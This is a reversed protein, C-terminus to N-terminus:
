SIVQQICTRVKCDDQTTTYHIQADKLAEPDLLNEMSLDQDFHFVASTMYAYGRAKWSAAQAAAAEVETILLRNEPFNSLGLVTQNSTTATPVEVSAVADLVYGLDTSFYDNTDGQLTGGLQVIGFEDENQRMLELLEEDFFVLNGSNGTLKVNTVNQGMEYAFAATRAVADLEISCLVMRIPYTKPFTLKKESVNAAPNWDNMEYSKLYGAPGGYDRLFKERITIYSESADFGTTAEPDSYTINCEVLDWKSLDLAYEPDWLKRGFPLPLHLTNVSAAVENRREAPPMGLMYFDLAALERGDLSFIVDTSDGIVEIATLYDAIGGKINDVASDDKSWPFYLDLYSLIGSSELEYTETAGGDTIADNKVVDVTQRYM